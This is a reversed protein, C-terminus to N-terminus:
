WRIADHEDQIMARQINTVYMDGFGGVYCVGFRLKVPNSVTGQGKFVGDWYVKMVGTQTDFILKLAHFTQCDLNPDYYITKNRAAYGFSVKGSRIGSVGSFPGCGRCVCYPGIYTGTSGYETIIFPMIFRNPNNFNYPFEAQSQQDTGFELFMQGKYHQKQARVNMKLVDYRRVDLLYPLIWAEHDGSSTFSVIHADATTAYNDPVYPQEAYSASVTVNGNLIFTNGVIAEGNVTFNNFSYSSDPTQSLTIVTGATGSIPSATITGGTSQIITVTYTVATVSASVVVDHDPMTFTNGQIQVGDVTYYDFTYGSSTTNGLTVTSGVQASAPATITGHSPQTITITRMDAEFWGKVNADAEPMLFTNGALDVNNLTYKSFVYNQAPTNSLTILTDKVGSMPNASISGHGDTTLIVDYVTPEPPTPPTPPTPGSGFSGFYRNNSAKIMKHNYSLFISM